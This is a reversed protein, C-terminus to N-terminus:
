GLGDPAPRDPGPVPDTLASFLQAMGAPQGFFLFFLWM